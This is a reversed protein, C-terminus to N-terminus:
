AGYRDLSRWQTLLKGAGFLVIGALVATAVPFTGATDLAIRGPRESLLEMRRRTMASGLSRLEHKLSREAIPLLGTEEDAVHHITERMLQMFLGDFAANDPGMSRLKRITERLEDHQPGSERLTENDPAVRALAPYFIEEELQAHIELASCVSGVIARKRWWPSALHYRHFARFVHSHDLRIMTTIDPSLQLPKRSM